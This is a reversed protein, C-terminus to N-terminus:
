GLPGLPVTVEKGESSDSFDEGLDGGNEVVDGFWLETERDRIIDEEWYLRAAIVERDRSKKLKM